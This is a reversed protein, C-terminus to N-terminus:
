PGYIILHHESPEHRDAPSPRTPWLRVPSDIKRSTRNFKDAASRELDIGLQAAILDACIIVDGLEEAAHMLLGAPVEEGRSQARKIKKLVNCLEGTEGALENGREAVSWDHLGGCGFHPVRVLNASRLWRFFSM